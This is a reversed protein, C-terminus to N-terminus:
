AEMEPWYELRIKRVSGDFVRDMWLSLGSLTENLFIKYDEEKVEGEGGGNGDGAGRNAPPIDLDSDSDSEMFGM